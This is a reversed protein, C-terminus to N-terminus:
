SARGLDCPVTSVELRMEELRRSTERRAGTLNPFGGESREALSELPDM